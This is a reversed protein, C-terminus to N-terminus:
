LVRPLDEVADVISKLNSKTAELPKREGYSNSAGFVLSDTDTTAYFYYHSNGRAFVYLFLYTNCALKYYLVTEPSSYFPRHVRELFEKMRIRGFKTWKM